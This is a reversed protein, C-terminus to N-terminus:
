WSWKVYVDVFREITESLASFLVTEGTLEQIADLQRRKAVELLSTPNIGLTKLPERIDKLGDVEYKLMKCQWTILKIVQSWTLDKLVAPLYKVGLAIHRAEDQEYLPLLDTLIPEVNAFRLGRFITIAVPEVMLQMGLLQNALHPADIVEQFGRLSNSSVDCTSPEYDLVNRLYDRMVYFHRAEDHAQSTAALKPGPLTIVHALNSSVNWAALEGWLIVSLVKILSQREEVSLNPKGFQQTLDTLTDKGNWGREHGKHYVNTLTQNVSRDPCDDDLIGDTFNPL